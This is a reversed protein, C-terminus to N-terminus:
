VEPSDTLCVDPNAKIRAPEPLDRRAQRTKFHIRRLRACGILACQNPPARM